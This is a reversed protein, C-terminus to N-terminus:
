YHSEYYFFGDIMKEVYFRNDGDPEDWSYGKGDQKLTEGKPYEINEKADVENKDNEQLLLTNPIM